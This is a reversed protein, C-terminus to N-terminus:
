SSVRCSFETQSLWVVLHFTMPRFVFRFRRAEVPFLCGAALLRVALLRTALLSGGVGTCWDDLGGIWWDILGGLLSLAVDLCRWLWMRFDRAYCGSIVFNVELFM